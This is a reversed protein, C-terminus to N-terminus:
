NLLNVCHGYTMWHTALLDMLETNGFRYQREAIVKLCQTHDNLRALHYLEFQVDNDTVNEIRAQTQQKYQKPDSM